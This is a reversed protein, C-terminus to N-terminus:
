LPPKYGWWNFPTVNRKPYGASLLIEEQSRVPLYFQSDYFLVNNRPRPDLPYTLTRYPIADSLKITVDKRENKNNEYTIYLTPSVQVSGLGIMYSNPMLLNIVFQNNDDLSVTGQNPTNTFAQIQNYFPLGSGTYSMKYDAPAAAIYYVYNDKVPETIHGIVQMDYNNIKNIQGSCFISNFNASM